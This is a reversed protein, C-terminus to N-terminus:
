PSAIRERELEKRRAVRVKLGNIEPNGREEKHGGQHLKELKQSRSTWPRVRLEDVAAFLVRIRGESPFPVDVDLKHPRIKRSAFACACYQM